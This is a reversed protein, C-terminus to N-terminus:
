EIVHASRLEAVRARDIGFEELVEDTHQGRQPPVRAYHVPTESLRIPNGILDVSGADPHPLTVRMGRHVAQADAFAQPVDHVPGGPVGQTEFQAVWHRVTQTRTLGSIREVLVERHTVRTRNTAFRADAALEPAGLAHCLREFQGDNGCAIVVWGDAAPFTQYPVINPHGNGYRKPVEGSVFYNTAVNALWSLTSDYLALDISQGRGTRDRHRLAALIASSAYLGCVIDAVGVGVKMPEGDAEGTISMTGAMAQALFDYGPQRRRPGTQGFGSISCYVLRPSSARLTDYDLGYKELGGVKYNEVLVDCDRALAAVLAAGAPKQFDIAVSRKNRNAALYYASEELVGAKGELHPPGWRRTDDGLGPREIKIVEAGLDGLLQTCTPGALIRSLDLVRVGELATQDM